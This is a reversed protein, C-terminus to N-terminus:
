KEMAQTKLEPPMKEIAYRLATRPMIKKREMVFGFVEQLHAQSSVKLLWGYGKQVLDDGDRLLLDSIELIEDLFMGKRAPVILSVAAARRMWRNESGTFRKLRSIYEPYMEIFAGVTHNCLTDCSAWNDVYNETWYEFVSFDEPEYYKRVRYSWYCAIISEEMIGSRWLHDCVQFIENKPINKIKNYHERSIAKLTTSRIGYSRITEKFYRQNAEQRSTDTEATLRKRLDKLIPEMM